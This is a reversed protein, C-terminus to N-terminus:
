LTNTMMKNVTTFHYWGHYSDLCDFVDAKQFINNDIPFNPERNTTFYSNSKKCQKQEFAVSVIETWM